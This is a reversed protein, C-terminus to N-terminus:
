IGNCLSLLADSLYMRCYGYPGDFLHLTNTSVPALPTSSNSLSSIFLSFDSLTLIVPLAYRRSFALSCYNVDSYSTPFAADPFGASTFNVIACKKCSAVAISLTSSFDSIVSSVKPLLSQFDISSQFVKIGSSQLRAVQNINLITSPHPKFWFVYSANSRFASVLHCIFSIYDNFRYSCSYHSPLFLIVLPKVCPDTSSSRDIDSGLEHCSITLRPTIPFDTIQIIRDQSIGQSTLHIASELDRAFSFQAILPAYLSWNFPCSFLQAHQITATTIGLANAACIAATIHSGSRDFDTTVIKANTYKKLFRQLSYYAFLCRLLDLLLILTTSLSVSRSVLTYSLPKLNAVLTYLSPFAIDWFDFYFSKHSSGLLILSNYSQDSTVRSAISGLHHHSSTQIHVHEVSAEVSSKNTISIVISKVLRGIARILNPKKALSLYDELNRSLLSGVPANCRQNLEIEIDYHPLGLTDSTLRTPVYNHDLSLLYYRSFSAGNSKM